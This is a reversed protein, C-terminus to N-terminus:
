KGKPEFEIESTKWRLPKSPTSYTRSAMTVYIRPGEKTEVWRWVTELQDGPMSYPDGNRAIQRKSFTVLMGEGTRGKPAAVMKGRFAYKVENVGYESRKFVGKVSGNKKELTITYLYKLTSAEFSVPAAQLWGLALFSMLLIRVIM